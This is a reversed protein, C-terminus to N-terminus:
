EVTFFAQNRAHDDDTLSYFGAAEVIKQGEESMEFELFKRMISGEEPVGATYQYILRSLPYAGAKVKETDLPSVLGEGSVAPLSLIKVDTREAGQADKLYGVGVYGIGSVDQKVADVIAQTGEMGRMEPAYDAKVVADRFYGYTGSTSQRGYLVVPADPGDLEQWNTIEGRYLRGIQDLTLSPVTNSPHVIISLGDRALLFERVDVGNAKAQTREEETMERSSNALLIEQNILSAIGTASGGGTVSIEAGTATEGFAEALNSVMQVETDSGRITLSDTEGTPTVVSATCGSIVLGAALLGIVRTARM